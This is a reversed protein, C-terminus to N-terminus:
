CGPAAHKQKHKRTIQRVMGPRVGFIGLHYANGTGGVKTMAARWSKGNWQRVAGASYIRGAGHLGCKVCECYIDMLDTHVIAVSKGGCLPCPKPKM